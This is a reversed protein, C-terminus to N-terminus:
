RYLCNQFFIGEHWKSTSFAFVFFFKTMRFYFYTTLDYSSEFINTIPKEYVKNMSLSQVSQLVIIEQSYSSVFIETSSAIVMGICYIM